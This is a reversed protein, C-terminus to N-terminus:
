DGDSATVNKQQMLKIIADIIPNEIMMWKTAKTPDPNDLNTQILLSTNDHHSFLLTVLQDHEGLEVISVHKYELGDSFEELWYVVENRHNDYHTDNNHM